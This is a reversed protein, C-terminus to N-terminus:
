REPQETGELHPHRVPQHRDAGRLVADQEGGEHEAGAVGNGDAVQGVRHPAGGRRFVRAPGGLERLVKGPLRTSSARAQIVGVTRM